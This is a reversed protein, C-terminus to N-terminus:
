NCDAAIEQLAEAVYEDAQEDPLGSLWQYLLSLGDFLTAERKGVKLQCLLHFADMATKPPSEEIVIGPVLIKLPEPVGALKEADQATLVIVRANRPYLVNGSRSERVKPRAEDYGPAELVEGTLTIGMGNVWEVMDGTKM